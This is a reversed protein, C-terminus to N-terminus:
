DATVMKYGVANRSIFQAGPYESLVEMVGDESYISLYDNNLKLTYLYTTTLM